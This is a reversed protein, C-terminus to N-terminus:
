FFLNGLMASNVSSEVAEGTAKLIAQQELPIQGPIPFTM